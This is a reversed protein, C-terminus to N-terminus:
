PRKGVLWPVYKNVLASCAMCVGIAIISKIITYGWGNLHSINLLGVAVIIVQFVYPHWIYLLLTNKGIYNFLKISVLAKRAVCFLLICGLIILIFCFPISYYINTHVDITKYPFLYMSLVCMGVYVSALLWYYKWPMGSFADEHQKFLYGALFFLQVILARNLMAYNLIDYHAALLGAGWAFICIVGVTLEKKAYKRVFFHIIYAIAFCPMFWLEKGSIMDGIYNLLNEHLVMCRPIGPILALCFWPVIIRLFWSKWFSKVDGNKMSFVYGSIAFFLPMKVPSTFLFFLYRDPVIRYSAHGMVVLIMALARLCDVWDKRM